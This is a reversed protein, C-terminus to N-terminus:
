EKLWVNTLDGNNSLPASNWNVVRASRFNATKGTVLPVWPADQMVVRDAEAWIPASADADPAALARDILQNVKPNSYCAYNTTPVTCNRHTRGDLLPGFFTVAANGQWDPGWGPAALDWDGAKTAKLNQLFVVYFNSPTSPKLKLRIGAKALDSQLTQAIEPSKGAERYLFTLDLGNPYGAEALLQKAKQPDGRSGETAYPDHEEYGILTPTLIQGLPRRLEPGGLVQIVNQKNVAFNIAQRVKLKKLAGNATPSQLNIVVYPNSSGDDELSLQKSKSEILTALNQTPVGTDWTMDVTGAQIEQFVPGEDSGLNIEIRDVYANRVPDSDSNWATNRVLVYRQDAVYTEISYPGNSIFNKRYEPSDPVYELVEVPAASSSPLALINVFDSRPQNLTIVLTKEDRAELGAVNTGEIYDRIAPATGGVEALGACFSDMGAIVQGYYSDAAGFPTVPNCVRKIGRVFDAATVARATGKIDWQVGDRLSITYTLGDDSIEPEGTAVDPVPNIREEADTSDPYTYLQRSIARLLGYTVQYYAGAPDLHDVDGAGALRLIGGRTADGGSNDEGAPDGGCGSIVLALAASVLILSRMGKLRRQMLEEM